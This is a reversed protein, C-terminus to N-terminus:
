RSCAEHQARAAAIDLSETADMPELRSAQSLLKMAEAKRSPELMLLGRAYELKLIASAPHLAIAKRYHALAEAKSAGYTLGGILGGVKDVVEAHYAGLAAHADPHRPELELARDLARKVRTGLGGALAQVVSVQQAYRGLCYALLYHANVSDPLAHRAAECLAAAEELLATARTADRELYTAYMGAAKAAVAHGEVGLGRGQEWAAQFDGRHFARWAQQLLDASPFPECDGRHLESWHKRLAAGRYEFSPQPDAFATWKRKM